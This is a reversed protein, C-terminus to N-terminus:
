TGKYLNLFESIITTSIPIIKNDASM